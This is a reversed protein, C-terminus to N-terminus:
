AYSLMDSVKAVSAMSCAAPKPGTYLGCVVNVLTDDLQAATLPRKNATVWPTWQHPPLLNNTKSAMIHMLGNGLSSTTCANIDAWDTWGLKTACAQGSTAPEGMEMCYMFPWWEATANHFHMACAEVMNGLCEKAGHQCAFSYTGDANKTERANGFPVFDLDMIGGDAGFAKFADNM